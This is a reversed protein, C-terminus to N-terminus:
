LLAHQEQIYYINNNIEKEIKYKYKLLILNLVFIHGILIKM